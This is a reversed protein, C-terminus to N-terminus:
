FDGVVGEQEHLFLTLLALLLDGEVGPRKHQAAKGQTRKELTLEKVLAPAPIEEKRNDSV